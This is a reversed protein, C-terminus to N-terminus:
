RGAGFHSEQCYRCKRSRRNHYPPFRTNNCYHVTVKLLKRSHVTGQQESLREGVVRGSKQIINVVGANRCQKRVCTNQSAFLASLPTTEAPKLVVTNGTALAPGIKWKFREETLPLELTKM